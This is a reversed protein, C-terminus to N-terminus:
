RLNYAEVVAIGTTNNKGRMIATYNGPALTSLIASELDNTPPITTAEIEAQQSTGDPRVKWNDNTAITTGSGDHLELTPDGLAGTVGFNSLSPGIGRVLVTPSAGGNNGVIFGGIMVNDGTDVFGRTSINALTSNAAQGLDYVEVVGVGAGGNKGALIATYAGPSLTTLIASELDNTPPITTARIDAEQSQGTQDNIKWNDNTALTTSGQHLELTPDSLTVGVGSLSPGIGRILVKKPEIGTIIFGGILVNNGTLVRMRTAINLLPNSPVLEFSSRGYTGIRLLSPSVSSDLAVATVTVTPLGLGLVQWSAGDDTTQFVGGDGGVIITRPATSTSPDIAIAHLPLDPLSDAGTGSIDAWPAGRNTTKFIHQSPSAGSIGPYIVFVTGTNLPDIAIGLAAQGTGSPDPLATWTAAAGLLANTSYAVSGDHLGIWVVNPDIKVTAIATVDTTLSDVETYNNGNDTSQYLGFTSAVTGSPDSIKFAAYVTNDCTQDFAFAYADLTFGTPPNPSLNFTTSWSTGGSTTQRYGTGEATIAHMPNCPDVTMPGGDGDEGLQWTNGTYGPGFQANGTDQFGGYTWQRNTNSGRGIDIRSLLNSAIGGNAFSTSGNINTFTGGGNTTMAIGGDHGTYFTQGTADHPSFLFAHNDDHVQNLTIATGGFSGGGNTSKWVKQFGIYVTQDNTPDVGITLDYGCQCGSGPANAGPLNTWTGGDDTSVWMGLYEHSATANQVTAYITKGSPSAGVTTSQAFAIDGVTGGPVTTNQLPSGNSATWLNTFTPPTAATVDSNSVFIGLGSISVRVTTSPSQTDLRIDNIGNGPSGSVALRSFHAGADLSRYLGSTTAVLLVGPKPLVIRSIHVGAPSNPLRTWTNGGDLSKYIGVAQFICGTCHGGFAPNGTGAYVISPNGPDLAVAGTSLTLLYDTLPTWSSGHDTSKWIGGFGSAIYITQDTTGRPDIAIDVVEGSDPGSGQSGLALNIQLPAPGVQTWQSGNIGTAHVNVLAVVAIALAIAGLALGPRIQRNIKERM